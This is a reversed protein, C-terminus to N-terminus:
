VLGLRGRAGSPKLRVDSKESLVSLHQHQGVCRACLDDHARGVLSADHRACRPAAISRAEPPDATRCNGRARPLRMHVDKTTFIAEPQARFAALVREEELTAIREIEIM